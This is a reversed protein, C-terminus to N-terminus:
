YLKLPNLTITKDKKNTTSPSNLSINDDTETEPKDIFHEAYECLNIPRPVIFSVTARIGSCKDDSYESLFMVNINGVEVNELEDGIMELTDLLIHLCTDQVEIVPIEDTPIGLITINTSYELTSPTRESIFGENDILYQYYKHNHNDNINLERKYITDGVLIHKHAIKLIDNVLQRM